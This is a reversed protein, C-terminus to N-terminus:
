GQAEVAQAARAKVERPLNRFARPASYVFLSAKKCAELDLGSQRLRAVVVAAFADLLSFEAERGRGAGAFPKVSARVLGKDIWTKLTHYETSTGNAGYPVGTLGCLQPLGLSEPEEGLRERLFRRLNRLWLGLDAVTLPGEYDRGNADRFKSGPAASFVQKEHIVLLPTAGLVAELRDLDTM